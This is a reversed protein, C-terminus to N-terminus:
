HSCLTIQQKGWYMESTQLVLEEALPNKGPFRPLPEEKDIEGLLRRHSSLNIHPKGKNGGLIEPPPTGAEGGHFGGRPIESLLLVEEQELCNAGPLKYYWVGLAPDPEENICIAM